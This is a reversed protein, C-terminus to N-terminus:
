EKIEDKYFIIKDSGTPLEFLIYQNTIKTNGAENQLAMEDGNYTVITGNICDTLVSNPTTLPNLDKIMGGSFTNTAEKM